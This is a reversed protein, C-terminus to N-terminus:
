KAAMAKQEAATAKVSATKKIYAKQAEKAIREAKPGFKDLIESAMEKKLKHYKVLKAWLPSNAEKALRYAILKTRRKLDHAKSIRVLTNKKLMNKEVLIQAEESECFTKIEEDSGRLIDEALFMEMVQDSNAIDSDSLIHATSSYLGM